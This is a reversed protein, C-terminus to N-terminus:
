DEAIKNNQNARKAVAFDASYYASKVGWVYFALSAIIVVGFDLPYPLWNIGGFQSSGFYSVVALFVLYCLLWASAKLQALGNHWNTKAEYYLYLPLGLAVVFIVEITTPWMAWYAALSALVFSLPALWNLAKLRIPRRFDPALRRLAVATTPGTLYAILTATSIVSALTAWSRFCLVMVCAIVFNVGMAVRPTGYKPSIHGLAKPAHHNASFAALARATTAAFSVGTGFPSVFADLYLLVCLWYIGLLMAMDAFPSTFNLHQWGTKLLTAPSLAGIFAIQLLVYIIFAITLSIVIGRSINKRPHNIESGVNIVTQFANYSFIIGSVTTAAFVSASGFPMFQHWDSGFNQPHFSAMLLLIITLLPVGLKFVAVLNTFRTLLTMSWFNLLTFILIFLFVVGLGATTITGNDMFQKTWNAWVWPWTSMYQVSGVAEVPILTVLSVWNAWAAIFGLLPGHSYSAYRSMGGSQPFMTGLEIYNFAILGIVLAGIVWSIIAAPGAVMVAEWSGFLWGSGILSSLCLTVTTLLSIKKVNQM